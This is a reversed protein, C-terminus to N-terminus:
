LNFLSALTPLFWMDFSVTKDISKQLLDAVNRGVVGTASFGKTWRVHFSTNLGAQECPFSYTFGLSFERDLLSRLRLFEHLNM